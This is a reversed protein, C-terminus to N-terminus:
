ISSVEFLPTYGSLWYLFTLKSVLLITATSVLVGNQTDLFYFGESFIDSISKITLPSRLAPETFFRATGDAIGPPANGGVSGGLDEPQHGRAVWSKVM